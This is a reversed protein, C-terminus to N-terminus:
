NPIGKIGPLLLICAIVYTSLNERIATDWDNYDSSKVKIIKPEKAPYNFIKLSDKFNEM